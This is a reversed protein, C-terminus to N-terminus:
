TDYFVGFFLNLEKIKSACLEKSEPFTEGLFEYVIVLPIGTMTSYESVTDSSVEKGTFYKIIDKKQSIFDKSKFM